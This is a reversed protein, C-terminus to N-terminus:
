DEDERQGTLRQLLRELYRECNLSGQIAQLPELPPAEGNAQAAAFLPARAARVEALKQEAEARLERARETGAAGEDLEDVEEQLAFMEQLFGAPLATKDLARGGALLELLYAARATDDRLTRYGENVAAATREAAQREAEPATAVLDPHHALTLRQYAADLARRELAYGRPLDFLTFYDASGSM